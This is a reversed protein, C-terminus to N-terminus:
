SERCRPVHLEPAFLIQERGDLGVSPHVSSADAGACFHSRFDHGVILQRSALDTPDEGGGGGVGYGRGGSGQGRGGYGRWGKGGGRGAPGKRPFIRM